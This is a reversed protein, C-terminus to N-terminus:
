LSSLCRASKKPKVQRVLKAVTKLSADTSIGAAVFLSKIAASRWTLWLRRPQDAGQAPQGPHRCLAPPRRRGATWRQGPHARQRPYQGPSRPAINSTSNSTKRTTGPTRTPTATTTATIITNKKPWTKAGERGPQGGRDPGQLRFIQEVPWGAKLAWATSWLCRPLPWNQCGAARASVCPCRSRASWAPWTWREGGVERTLDALISFSALM